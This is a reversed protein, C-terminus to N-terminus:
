EGTMARADLIRDLEAASLGTLTLAVERISRGTAFAENALEATKDYGIVTALPTAISLRVPQTRVHSMPGAAQISTSVGPARSSASRM